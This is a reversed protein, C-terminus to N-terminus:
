GILSIATLLVVTAGSDPLLPPAELPHHSFLSKPLKSAEQSFSSLASCPHQLLPCQLPLDCLSSLRLSPGVWLPARHTPGPSSVSGLVWLWQFVKSSM